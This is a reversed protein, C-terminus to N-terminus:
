GDHRRGFPNSTVQASSHSAADSVTMSLNLTRTIIAIPPPALLLLEAHVLIWFTASSTTNWYPQPAGAYTKHAIEHARLVDAIASDVQYRLEPHLKEVLGTRFSAPDPDLHTAIFQLGSNWAPTLTSAHTSRIYKNCLFTNTVARTRSHTLRIHDQLQRKDDFITHDCQPCIHIGVKSCIDMDALHLHNAHCSLM